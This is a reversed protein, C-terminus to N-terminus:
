VRLNTHDEPDLSPHLAPNICLIFMQVNSMQTYCQTSSCLVNNVMLVRATLINNFICKTFTCMATKQPTKEGATVCQLMRPDFFSPKSKPHIAKRLMRSKCGTELTCWCTNWLARWPVITSHISLEHTSHVATHQQGVRHQSLFTARVSPVNGEHEWLHELKEPSLSLSVCLFCLTPDFTNNIFHGTEGDNEFMIKCASRKKKHHLFALMCIKGFCLTCCSM